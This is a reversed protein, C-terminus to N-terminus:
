ENYKADSIGYGEELRRQFLKEEAASFMTSRRETDFPESVPSDKDQHSHSAAYKTVTTDTPPRWQAKARRSPVFLLSAEPKTPDEESSLKLQYLAETSDLPYMGVAKFLSIVHQMSMSKLWAVSFISSFNVKGLIGPCTTM